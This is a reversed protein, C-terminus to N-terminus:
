QTKPQQSTGTSAPAKGTGKSADDTKTAPAKGTTPKSGAAGAGAPRIALQVEVRDGEKIGQLASPPFHLDLDGEDTKLTVMGKSSDIKTVEGMMKHQGRAGGSAAKGAASKDTKTADSKGMDTKGTTGSPATSKTTDTSSGSSSGPTAPSPASSSPASSGGSPQQSGQALAAGALGLVFVLTMCIALVQRM